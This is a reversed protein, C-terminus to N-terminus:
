RTWSTGGTAFDCNDFRFVNTTDAAFERAPRISRATLIPENLRFGSALAHPDSRRPSKSASAEPKRNSSEESNAMGLRARYVLPHRSPLANTHSARVHAANPSCRM